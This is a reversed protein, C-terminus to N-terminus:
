VYIYSDSHWFRLGLMTFMLVFILLMLEVLFEVRLSFECFPFFQYKASNKYNDIHVLVRNAIIFDITASM